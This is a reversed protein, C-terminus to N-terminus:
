RSLTLWQNYQAGKLGQPQGPSCLPLLSHPSLSGSPLYLFQSCCLPQFTPSCLLTSSVVGNQFVKSTAELGRASSAISGRSNGCRKSHEVEEGHWAEQSNVTKGPFENKGKKTKNVNNKRSLIKLRGRRSNEWFLFLLLLFTSGVICDLGEQSRDQPKHCFMLPSQHCTHGSALGCESRQRAWGRPECLAFQEGTKRARQWGWLNLTWM